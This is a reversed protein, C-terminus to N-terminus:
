RPDLRDDEEEETDYMYGGPNAHHTHLHKNAAEETPFPGYKDYDPTEGYPWRQLRYFWGRKTEIFRCDAGTSMNKEERMEELVEDVSWRDERRRAHSAEIKYWGKTGGCPPNLIRRAKRLQRHM